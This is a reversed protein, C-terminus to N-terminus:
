RFEVDLVKPQCGLDAVKRAFALIKRYTSFTSRTAIKRIRVIFPLPINSNVEKILIALLLSMCNSIVALFICFAMLAPGRAAKKLRRQEYLRKKKNSLEEFFIFFLVVKTRMRLPSWRPSAFMDFLAVREMSNLKKILQLLCLSNGCFSVLLASRYFM